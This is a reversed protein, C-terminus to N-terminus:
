GSIQKGSIEKARSLYLSAEDLIVKLNTAEVEDTNNRSIGSLLRQADDELEKAIAVRSFDEWSAKRSNLDKVILARAVDLRIESRYAERAAARADDAIDQTRLATSDIKQTKAVSHNTESIAPIIKENTEAFSASAKSADELFKAVDDNSDKLSNDRRKAAACLHPIMKEIMDPFEYSGAISLLMDIAAQPDSVLQSLELLRSDAQLKLSDSVAFEQIKRINKQRHSQAPTLAARLCNLELEDYQNLGRSGTTTGEMLKVINDYVERHLKDDGGNRMVTGLISLAFGASVKKDKAEETVVYLATREKELDASVASEIMSKDSEAQEHETKQVFTMIAIVTTALATIVPIVKDWISRHEESKNHIM